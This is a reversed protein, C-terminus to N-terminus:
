HDLTTLGSFRAVTPLSHLLCLREKVLALLGPRCGSEMSSPIPSLARSRAQRLPRSRFVHAPLIVWPEIGLPLFPLRRSHNPGLGMSAFSPGVM